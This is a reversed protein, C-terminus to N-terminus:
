MLSKGDMDKPQGVGLVALMTPAVDALRGAHLRAGKRGALVFPVPNTTHATAPTGDAALMQEANGHDATVMAVGGGAVIADVLRGVYTDVAEVARVTAAMDGTHGVMDCNAFNIIMVDYKGVAAVAKTCLEEGSMEPQLDYTAVRPSPVLIREEGKNQAEIGGNFFYTVHAYKETEALRVQTLGRAALVEGLTNKIEKPGFAVRVNALTVDYQTMSAFHVTRFVSRNFDAFGKETMARTIEIARDSRFNFFIVSDGDAIGAYDGIVTPEIFEDTKGNAYSAAVAEGVTKATKGKAAVLCEYAAAVRDWRKDRDMAYYRGMVTAIKGMKEVEKVFTAASKPAVDRGDAIFHIVFDAFNQMKCLRVIARLHELTSHVGGDSCLGMIHLRKKGSKAAQISRLLTDNAYFDGSKIARDIRTIDQYVVRGAGLNLHGVESNGMQGAPLGVDLGSAVLTTHPWTKFLDDLHPTRAHTVANGRGDKAIGFGDMIILAVTPKNTM